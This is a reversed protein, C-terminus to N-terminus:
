IGINSNGFEFNFLVSFYLSFRVAAMVCVKKKGNRVAFLAFSEGNSIASDEVNQQLSIVAM